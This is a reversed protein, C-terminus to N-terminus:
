VIHLRLSPAGTTGTAAARTGCAVALITAAAADDRARMRRGEGGKALKSNGAPDTQVRAEAMASRLLLSVPARVAGGLVASRFARVDEAGDKYGQGRTVLEVTPPFGAYDLAQRLEGERWRDAVIAQPIGWRERAEELLAPVDSVRGGAQILEGRRAMEAYAGGVGDALGREELSPMEPFAAVADVAGTAPWYAAAASMAATSGLDIGLAYPGVRDVSEVTEVSRWVDADLLLADVTDSVGMNLRLAKFTALASPDRKAKEAERRMQALLDPMADLSPNARKWTRVHFPNDDPRAAHIQRYGDGGQLEKEFPHDVSAPRTGIWLAKSNPLKGRATLLAALMADIGTSPWQALEDLILLSPAAGHLRRPDSGMVRVLAGTDRDQVMARNSSDWVRFRRPEAERFPSLFHLLHRFSILGQEFSSAIILCEGMPSALPGAVAAVGLGACLTTKGAGRSITLVADGDQGFAGKLYRRQWPMLTLRDGAFRGQGVVLRELFDFLPTQLM